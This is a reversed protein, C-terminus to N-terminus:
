PGTGGRGHCKPGDPGCSPGFLTGQNRHKRRNKARIAVPGDQRRRKTNGNKVYQPVKM